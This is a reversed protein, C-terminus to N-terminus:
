ALNKPSLPLPYNSVFLYVFLSFVANLNNTALGYLTRVTFLPLYSRFITLIAGRQERVVWILVEYTM